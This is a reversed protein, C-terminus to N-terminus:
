LYFTSFAYRNVKGHYIVPSVRHMCSSYFIVMKNNDFKETHNFDTFTLDGGNMLATNECLWFLSTFACQDLHASYKGHESFKALLTSDNMTYKFLRWLIKDKTIEAFMSLFKKYIRFYPSYKRDKYIEDLWIGNRKYSLPVNNDVPASIEADNTTRYESDDDMLIELCRIENWVAGLEFDTLYNELVYYGFVTDLPVYRINM